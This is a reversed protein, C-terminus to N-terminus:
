QQMTRCAIAVGRRVVFDRGPRLVAPVGRRRDVAAPQYRTGQRGGLAGGGLQGIVSTPLFSNIGLGTAFAFPLRAIVGFLITMAGATLATVASVQAFLLQNGAVDHPGALIIPNLVISYAMAIFTVVGGRVEAGVTSGRTTIEFFRDLRNV